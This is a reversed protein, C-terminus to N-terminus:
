IDNRLGPASTGSQGNRLALPPALVEAFVMARRWHERSSGALAKSDILEAAVASEGSWQPGGLSLDGGLSGSAVSERASSGSVSVAVSDSSSQPGAVAKSRSGGGSQFEGSGSTSGISKPWPTDAESEKDFAMEGKAGSFAPQGAAGFVSSNDNAPTSAPSAQKLEVQATQPGPEAELEIEHPSQGRLLREWPDEAAPKPERKPRPAPQIEQKREFIRRLLPLGFFLFLFLIKVWDFEGENGM